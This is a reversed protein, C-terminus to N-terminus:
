NWVTLDASGQTLELLVYHKKHQSFWDKVRNYKYEGIMTYGGEEFLAIDEMYIDYETVVYDALGERVYREIEDYLESFSERSFDNLAFYKFQPAQDYATYFGMDSIKYSLLVADDGAREEITQAVTKQPYYNPMFLTLTSMGFLLTFFTLAVACIVATHVNMGARVKRAVIASFGSNQVEEVPTQEPIDGRKKARCARIHAVANGFLWGILELTPKLGVSLLIVVPFHYPTHKGSILQVAFMTCVIAIFYKGYLSRGSKRYVYIISCVAVFYLYIHRAFSLLTDAIREIFEEVGTGGYSFMNRYFYVEVLDGIAGNVGFYILCPIAPVAFAAIFVAAYIFGSKLDHKLCRDVFLCVAFAAYLALGTFKSWFIIGSFLGCLVVRYLPMKIGGSKFYSLFVYLGYALMPLCYEEVCGGSQLQGAATYTLGAVAVLYLLAKAHPMFMVLIKYCVFLYATACIIELIYIGWFDNGFCLYNLAFVFYVIPGKHDFLDRYPVLGEVIGHGVSLYWNSDVWDNFPYLFSCKSVITICVFALALSIGFVTWFRKRAAKKGEETPSCTLEAAGDYFLAEENWLKEKKM